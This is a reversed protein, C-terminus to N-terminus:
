LCLTCELSVLYSFLFFFGEKRARLNIWSPPRNNQAQGPGEESFINAMVRRRHLRGRRPSGEGGQKPGLLCRKAGWACTYPSRYLPCQICTASNGRSTSHSSYFGGFYHLSLNGLAFSSPISSPLSMCGRPEARRLAAMDQVKQTRVNDADANGHIHSPDRYVRRRRGSHGSIECAQGFISGIGTTVVGRGVSWFSIAASMGSDTQTPGSMPTAVLLSMLTLSM